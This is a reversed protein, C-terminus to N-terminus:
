NVQSPQWHAFNRLLAFGYRHSKEPHFQVGIMNERALAATFRYGYNGCLLEEGPKEPVAHYSHAFYYRPNAPLNGIIDHTTVMEVSAWGMHPIAKVNSMMNTDFKKVRANFWGLGPLLGEESDQCMIQHGVCIGLVPVKDTLAKRELVPILDAEILKQMCYDFAGVGPLILQSAQGIIAADSSIENPIDLYNLMNAIAGLNGVGYNVITIM